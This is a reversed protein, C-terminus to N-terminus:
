VLAMQSLSNRQVKETASLSLGSDVLISTLFFPLSAKSKWANSCEKKTTNTRSSKEMAPDKLLMIQDMEEELLMDEYQTKVRAVIMERKKQELNTLWELENLYEPPKICDHTAEVM